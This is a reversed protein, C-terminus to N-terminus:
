RTEGRRTIEVDEPEEAGEEVLSLLLAQVIRELRAVRPKLRTDSSTAANRRIENIEDLLDDFSKRMQREWWGLWLGYLVGLAPMGVCAAFRWNHKLWEILPPLKGSSPTIRASCLHPHKVFHM